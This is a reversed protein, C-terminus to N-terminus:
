SKANNEGFNTTKNEFLGLLDGVCNNIASFPGEIAYYTAGAVEATTADPPRVKDLAEKAKGLATRLASVKDGLQPDKEFPATIRFLKRSIEGLLDRADNFRIQMQLKELKQSIESLDITISQIKVTKGAETAARKAERAEKFALIAYYLGFLGIITAIWFDIRQLFSWWPDLAARLPGLGNIIEQVENTNMLGTYAKPQTAYNRPSKAGIGPKPM